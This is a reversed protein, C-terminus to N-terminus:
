PNTSAVGGQYRYGYLANSFTVTGGLDGVWLLTQQQVPDYNATYWGRFAPPRETSTATLGWTKLWAGGIPAGNSVTVNVATSTSLNESTDRAVATLTHIG